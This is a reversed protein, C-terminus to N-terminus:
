RSGDARVVGGAEAAPARTAAAPGTHTARRADDGPQYGTHLALWRSGDPWRVLLAVVPLRRSAAEILQLAAAPTTAPEHQVVEVVVGPRLGRSYAESMHDVAVVLVGQAAGLKYAQRALPNITALLLGLDPAPPPLQRPPAPVDAAPQNVGPWERITVTVRRTRDASWIELTRTAGIPTTAIARMLLRASPPAEDGYRLVVDGRQLGLASAPSDADVKTVIAAGPRPLGLARSLDPTMGQLHLGIWGIPRQEPHLLHRVADAVINSSIAFGLGISGENPLNTLLITNVGIVRGKSDILPGGSNGHNIAADTQVYDDFPTNMLDRQTGSVIGASLSTGVGEPDGVALVPEGPRTTDGDGLPLTPLTHGANVKLLALDVFPSAAVVKAPLETGDAMRVTIWVAGAIVHKNTVVIGSSDVIFGSGVFREQQGPPTLTGDDSDKKGTAVKVALINVTAPVARAAIEVWGIGPVSAADAGSASLPLATSLALILSFGVRLTASRASVTRPIPM